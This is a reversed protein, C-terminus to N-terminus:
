KCLPAELQRMKKTEIELDKYNSIKDYERVSLNYFMTVPMDILNCTKRKYDKVMIDPRYSNIKRDTQVDFGWLITVGKVETIPESEQKHRKEWDM